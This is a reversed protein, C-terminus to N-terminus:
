PYLFISFCSFDAISFLGRPCINNLLGPMPKDLEASKCAYKSVISPSVSLSKAIQRHSLKCGYKLRLIEKLKRMSIPATPMTMRMM